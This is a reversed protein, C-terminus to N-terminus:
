RQESTTPRTPGLIPRYCLGGWEYEGDGCPQTQEPRWWCGGNLEVAGRQKCPPRAQGPLPKKPVEVTLGESSSPDPQEMRVSAMLAEKALSIGADESDHERSPGVVDEVPRLPEQWGTDQEGPLVVATALGAAATFGAAAALLPGWARAPRSPGPGSRSVVPAVVRRRVVPLDAEPGATRVAEELLQAVQEASGRESPNESLLQRAIEALEPGVTTLREPPEYKLEPMLPEQLRVETPVRMLPYIGTVLRYVVVGLSYLDDAPGPKYRAGATRYNRWHFLLAEPSRYEPTGPPLVENTLAPAGKYDGAGFDLLMPFSDDPRVLMNDGKVDRHVAQAAHTAALARAIPALVRMLQRTTLVQGQAWAYLPVGEVWQMVLFPFPGAPHEWMGSDYLRPVHAHLVRRLLEAERQFRADMPHMAVKLAVPEAGPQEL